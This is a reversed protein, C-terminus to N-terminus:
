PQMWHTPPGGSKTSPPDRRPSAVTQHSSTSSSKVTSVHELTCLLRIPNFQCLNTAANTTVLYTSLRPVTTKQKLRLQSLLCLPLPLWRFHRSICSLSHTGASPQIRNLLLPLANNISSHIAYLFVTLMSVPTAHAHAEVADADAGRPHRAQRENRDGGRSYLVPVELVGTRPQFM